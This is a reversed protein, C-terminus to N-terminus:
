LKMKLSKDGVQNVEEKEKLQNAMMHIFIDVVAKELLPLFHDSNRDTLIERLAQIKKWQENFKKLGKIENVRSELDANPAARVLYLKKYSEFAESIKKNVIQILDEPIALVNDETQTKTSAVKLSILNVQQNIPEPIIKKNVSFACEVNKIFLHWLDSDNKSLLILCNLLSIKRLFDNTNVKKDAYLHEAYVILL